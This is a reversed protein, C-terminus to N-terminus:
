LLFRYGVTLSALGLNSSGTTQHDISAWQLLVEGTIEGPGLAWGVGLPLGVGVRTSQERTPAIASDAVSGEVTSRVFIIRPGLGVTPTLKGALTPLRVVATPALTLRQERLKWAFAAGSAGLRPDLGADPGTGEAGVAAYDLSLVAAFRHQMWPLVWGADVGVSPGASLGALPLLGGVRAGLLAGKRGQLRDAPAPADDARASPALLLTAAAIAAVVCARQAAPALHLAKM